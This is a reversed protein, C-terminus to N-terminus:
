ESDNKRVELHGAGESGPVEGPAERGESRQREDPTRVPNGSRDPPCQRPDGPRRSGLQVPDLPLDLPWRGPLCTAPVSSRPIVELHGRIASLSAEGRLPHTEEVRKVTCYSVACTDCSPLVVETKQLKSGVLTGVRHLSQWTSPNVTPKTHWWLLVPNTTTLHPVYYRFGFVM